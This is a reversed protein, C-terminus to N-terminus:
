KVQALIEMNATCQSILEKNEDIAKIIATIAANEDKVSKQYKEIQGSVSSLKKKIIWQRFAKICCYLKEFIYVSSLAVIVVAFILFAGTFIFACVAAVLLAAFLVAALAIGIGCSAVVAFLLLIIRFIGDNDFVTEWVSPVASAVGAVGGFMPPVPAFVGLLFECDECYFDVVTGMENGVKTYLSVDDRKKSLKSEKKKWPEANKNIEEKAKNHVDLKKDLEVLNSEAQKILRTFHEPESTQIAVIKNVCADIIQKYGDAIFLFESEVKEADSYHKEYEFIKDRNRELDSLLEETKSKLNYVKDFQAFEIPIEDTARKLQLETAVNESLLYIAFEAFRFDLSINTTAETVKKYFELGDFFVDRALKSIQAKVAADIRVLRKVTSMDANAVAAMYVDTKTMDFLLSLDDSYDIDNIRDILEEDSKCNNECLFLSLVAEAYDTSKTDRVSLIYDYFAKGSKSVTCCLEHTRSAVADEVTKIRETFEGEAYQKALSFTKGNCLNKLLEYNAFDSRKIRALMEKDSTCDNECLMLGYWAAGNEPQMDLVRNYFGRAEEIDGQSLQQNARILLTDESSRNPGQSTNSDLKKAAEQVRKLNADLEALKKKNEEDQKRKEEEAKRKKELFKPSHKEVFDLILGDANFGARNIGQIKGDRGPLEEIPAGNFVITVADHDKDGNNILRLFRSYENQVWPTRLYDKDSCVVLMTESTALAYLIHAEYKEGVKDQLVRESYFPVYGRSELADFVRHAYVSDDTKKDAKEDSIKVCIFTDYDLGTEKLRCFEARINDIEAGRRLYEEKQERTACDLAKGYYKNKCFKDEIIKHCIPQLRKTVSRDAEEKIDQLYQVKFEALAMGFYAEPECLDVQSAKKYAAFAEDFKGADLFVEGQSLYYKIDANDSKAISIKSRCHECEIVFGVAKNLDLPAGCSKCKLIEM